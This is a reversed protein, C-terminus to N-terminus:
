TLNSREYIVQLQPWAFWLVKVVGFWVTDSCKINVPLIVALLLIFVNVITFTKLKKKRCHSANACYIVSEQILIQAARFCIRTFSYFYTIRLQNVVLM